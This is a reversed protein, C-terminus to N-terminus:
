LPALRRRAAAAPQAPGCDRWGCKPPRTRITSTSVGCGQPGAEGQKFRTHVDVLTQVDGGFYLRLKAAAIEVPREISAQRRLRRTALEWFLDLRTANLEPESCLIRTRPGSEDIELRSFQALWDGNEPDRITLGEYRTM